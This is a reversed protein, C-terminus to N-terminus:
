PKGVRFVLLANGPRAQSNAGSTVYVSGDVVQVPYASIQGGDATGNVADFSRGTDFSWLPILRVVGFEVSRCRVCFPLSGVRPVAGFRSLEDDFETAPHYEARRYVLHHNPGCLRM